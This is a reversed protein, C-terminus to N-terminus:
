MTAREYDIVDRLTRELDHRPEYGILGGIKGLDPQRRMMDDFERGYAQEYSIQRVESDSGTMEVVRRALEAISIPVDNGVNIVEGVADPCEMLGRLAGVVDAVHCFCRSQAGTGYVDLPEGALARRVFRPVVMGYRGTQRPGVTNFLRVVITELGYQDHYALALFEDVMKSCAYSWRTFRTSGFTTDDDEAFPVKINKGYVESTSAVLIRRGFRNALNLMVESGHINTEITHVPQDVILQVGVAAALHVIVDCRDVLVAMTESNRVSDRVFRFREHDRIAAINELSGTSLDDAVTVAHDDALLSEALHSGIFGAGGTILVNM